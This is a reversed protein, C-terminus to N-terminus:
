TEHARLHTYSVPTGGNRVWDKLTNIDTSDLNGYFGDPAIITNYKSLKGTNLQKANLLSVPIGMRFNLLHWVEGVGYSSTGDGSLIAVSPKQLVGQYAGGLDPGSPTSATNSAYINVHDTKALYIMMKYIDEQSITADADRQYVPIVITGRDFEMEKGDIVASFAQTTLRPRIGLDMISYLSKPAYYRNWKMLYASKAKGGILMGGDLDVMGLQPGIYRDRICM